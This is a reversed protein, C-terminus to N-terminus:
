LPFRAAAAVRAELQAVMPTEAVRLLRVLSAWAGNSIPSSAAAGSLLKLIHDVEADSALEPVAVVEPQTDFSFTRIPSGDSTGASLLGRVDVFFAHDLAVSIEPLDVLRM